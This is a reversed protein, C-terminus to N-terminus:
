FNEFPESQHTSYIQENLLEYEQPPMNFDNHYLAANWIDIKGNDLLLAVDKEIKYFDMLRKPIVFRDQADCEVAAMNCLFANRYNRNQIINKNLSDIFKMKERFASETWLTIHQGEGRTIWFQQRENEPLSKLLATPLKLRGHKEIAIEWFGYDFTPM